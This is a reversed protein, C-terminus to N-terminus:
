LPTLSGARSTLLVRRWHLGRQNQAWGGGNEWLFFMQSVISFRPIELYPICVAIIEYILFVLSVSLAELAFGQGKSAQGM